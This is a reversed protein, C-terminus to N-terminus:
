CISGIPIKLKKTICLLQQYIHEDNFVAQIDPYRKTLLAITLPCESFIHWITQVALKCECLRRERPTNSYRGLEIGLSHSGTRFRTIVKREAELILQPKPVYSNLNPNIRYYTGLKSDPDTNAAFVFKNKWSMIYDNQLIM